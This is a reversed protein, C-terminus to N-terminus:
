SREWDIRAPRMAVTMIPLTAGMLSTPVLLLLVAVAFRFSTMPLVAGDTIGYMWRMPATLNSLMVPILLGCAAIGLELWAYAVWPRSLRDAWRGAVHSGLALGGMFATLVAAHSYVDLGLLLGLRQAWYIEYLM